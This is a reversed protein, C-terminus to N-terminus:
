VVGGYKIAILMDKVHQAGFSSKAELLPTKLDFLPHPENLWKSAEELSGFADTAIQQIEILRLVTEACHTPVSRNDSRLRAVTSRDIEMLKALETLGVGLMESIEPVMRAPMGGELLSKTQWHTFHVRHRDKMQALLGDWTVISQAAFAQVESRVSLAPPPAKQAAKKRRAGSATVTSQQTLLSAAAEGPLKAAKTPAPPKRM